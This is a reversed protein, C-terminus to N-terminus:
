SAAAPNLRATRYYITFKQAAAAVVTEGEKSLWKTAGEKVWMALGGFTEDAAIAQMVLCYLPDIVKRPALQPQGDAPAPIAGRYEVTLDLARQLLPTRVEGGVGAPDEDDFYISIRPLKSVDASHTRDEDVAATGAAASTAAAIFADVIQDRRSSM